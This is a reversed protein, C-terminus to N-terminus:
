PKIHLKQATETCKTHLKQATETCKTHLKRATETCSFCPDAICARVCVKM